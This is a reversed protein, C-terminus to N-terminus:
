SALRVSAAASLGPDDLLLRVGIVIAGALAAVFVLRCLMTLPPTGQRDFAEEAFSVQQSGGQLIPARDQRFM